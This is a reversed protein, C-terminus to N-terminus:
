NGLFGFHPMQFTFTEPKFREELPYRRMHHGLIPKAKTIIPSVFVIIIIVIIKNRVKVM